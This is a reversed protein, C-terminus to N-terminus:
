RGAASSRGQLRHHGPQPLLLSGHHGPEAFGHGRSGELRASSAGAEAECARRGAVAVCGPM